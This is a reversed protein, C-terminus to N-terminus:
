NIRKGAINFYENLSVNKYNKTFEVDNEFDAGSIKCLRKILEIDEIESNGVGMIGFCDAFISTAMEDTFEDKKIVYSAKVKQKEFITIVLDEDRFEVVGLQFEEGFNIIDDKYMKKVGLKKILKELIDFNTHLSRDKIGIKDCIELFLSVYKKPFLITQIETYEDNSTLLKYDIFYDNLVRNTEKIEINVAKIWDKRKISPDVRINKVIIDKEQLNIFISKCNGLKLMENSICSSVEEIYRDKELKDLFIRNDMFIKKDIESIINIRNKEQNFFIIKCKTKTPYINVIISKNKERM